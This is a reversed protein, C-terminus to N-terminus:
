DRHVGDIIQHVTAKALAHFSNAILRSTRPLQRRVAADVAAAL